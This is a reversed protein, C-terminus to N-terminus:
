VDKNQDQYQKTVTELQENLKGVDVGLESQLFSDMELKLAEAEEQTNTNELKQMMEMVKGIGPIGSMAEDIGPIDSSTKNSKGGPIVGMQDAMKLIGSINMGKSEAEQNIGVEVNATSFNEDMLIKEKSKASDKSGGMMGGMMQDMGPVKSTIAQMLKDLEIEGKNIKDAYKVSINQSIEMIGSLPNGGSQNTLVKEFSGVIDDIMSTTEQNVNVGLMDQLKKKTDDGFNSNTQEEEVSPLEREKYIVRNLQMVKENDKLEEPKLLESIMCLTHLNTWIIKKVEDPQNNLLNKLSLNEGFLSESIAQTDESKHSFVKIKSKLFLEFNDDRISSCFVQGRAIKVQDSYSEIESLLKVSEESPFIVKLQEIFHNFIQLYQSEYFNSQLSESM